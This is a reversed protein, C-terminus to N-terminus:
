GAKISPRLLFLIVGPLSGALAMVGYLISAAVASTSSIGVLPALAAAAAERTGWGGFGSPIIMSLLILPVVMLAHLLSLPAAVAHAAVIFLGIYASTILVSTAAQVAWAGRAWFVEALVKRITQFRKLLLPLLLAAAVLAIMFIWVTLLPKDVGMVWDPWYAFGIIAFILLAIQGSFREMVVATASGRFGMEGHSRARYARLADGGVGGPLLQNLASAVYYERVAHGLALHQGLRAATFRWRLASLVIQCQVLVLGVCLDGLSVQRLAEVISALNLHRILIITIIIVLVTGALRTVTM